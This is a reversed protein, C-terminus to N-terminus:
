LSDTSSTLILFFATKNKIKEFISRTQIERPISGCGGRRLVGSKWGRKIKRGEQQDLWLGEMTCGTRTNVVDYRHQSPPHPTLNKFFINKQVSTVSECM